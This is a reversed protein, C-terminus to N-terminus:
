LPLQASFAVRSSFPAQVDLCCRDMENFQFARYNVWLGVPAMPARSFASFLERKDTSTKLRANFGM